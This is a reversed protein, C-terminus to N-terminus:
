ELIRAAKLPAHDTYVVKFVKVFANYLSPTDKWNQMFRKIDKAHAKAASQKRKHQRMSDLDILLPRGDALVKINTAKMDGHSIQLLYLRYLLQVLQKVAKSREAANSTQNFFESVDLADVFETLFYARGRLGFLREEVLSIPTATEIDLLKLRYANSWSVSARTPRFARSLGHWFSKINYRKIVVPLEDVSALAVTCTNGNKIITEPTFYADLEVVTKPLARKEFYRNIAVFSREDKSVNVDTCQRLVKKAYANTAKVRAKNVGNKVDALSPLEKWSRTEAYTKLLSPMNADLLLVDFKSLLRSLNKLAKQKSLNGGIRIGDGDITYIVDRKCLFNKLYLDTQILGAIHHQAVTEVLRKALALRAVDNANRWLDDANESEVIAEFIVVYALLQSVEGHYYITPTVINSQQLAEVGRIDRLAYKHAQQGFFLKAYVSKGQWHARCVCRRKPVHRIVELATLGGISLRLEASNLGFSALIATNDVTTM